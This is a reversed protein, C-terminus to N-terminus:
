LNGTFGTQEVVVAKVLILDIENYKLRKAMDITGYKLADTNDRVLLVKIYTGRTDEAVSFRDNGYLGGRSNKNYLFSGSWVRNEKKFRVPPIESLFGAKDTTVEKVFWMMDSEIELSLARKTKEQPQNIVISVMEDVSIGYFENYKQTLVPHIYPVGNVYSVFSCGSDDFLSINSYREPTFPAFGLWDDLLPHYVITDNPLKYKEDTNNVASDRLSKITTYVAGTSQNWGTIYRLKNLPEDVSNSRSVNQCNVRFFSQVKGVGADRAISYDHIIRGQRNTDVWTGYGDGFYISGVGHYQCGFEGIPRPQPDSIVSGSPLARLVNDAGVRAFDDAVESVFNDNECVALLIKGDKIGVGIIDGQGPAILTKVIDGFYNMITPSNLTINRGYRRETEFANEVYAKGTDSVRTGWFDSPSHHFFQGSYSGITRNVLFTDFTNFNGTPYVLEDNEGVPISACIGYYIDTTTNANPRQLEIIAGPTLDILKPDDLILIQNFYDAPSDTVGSITEDNFPSLIQFNLIGNVNADFISGDGNKIFEVRDGKLFKYVTNTELNYQTNYDNLSQITLKLKGDVTKEISDVKWQLEYPNLNIGRVIDLCTAWSPLKMGTATYRFGCFSNSGTEQIRPIDLYNTRYVASQRGCNGRVIFGFPYRGGPKLGRSVSADFITNVIADPLNIEPKGNYCPPTTQTANPMCPSCNGVCDKLLCGNNNMVVLRIVRNRSEYNRIRFVAEGEQNTTAYKSGSIAVKIGPVAVGNCDKVSMQPIAYFNNDYGSTSVTMNVNTTVGEGGETDLVTLETQGSCSNEGKVSVLASAVGDKHFHYFGNHDTTSIFDGTSDFYLNLGEVPHDSADKIYGSYASGDSGYAALDDVLFATDLIVDGNCTNFYIEEEAVFSPLAEVNSTGTYETINFIGRVSTSTNQSSGVGNMASQSTIRIFGSTGKVVNLKFEQYYFQGTTAIPFMAASRQSPTEQASVIGTKQRTNFGPASSWQEMNAWVDSAEVYAIFNRTNDIFTQGYGLHENVPIGIMGGYYAPDSPDDSENISTGKQRFVYQNRNNVRDHVVLRGTVTVFEVNCNDEDTNCNTEISFKEVEKQDLPCNGDVYNYFALAEKIEFMGQPFRPIPNRVRSIQSPAIAIKGKDNCFFYDFACDEYSFGAETIAESFEREYWKEQSDSYKKYKEITEAIFWNQGDTTYGIQIKEVMPNGVPVRLKICRPLSATSDFCGRSNIYFTTSRDSWLSERGDYYIHKYMLQIPMDLIRNSLFKDGDAPPVFEGALCGCPDPVCLRIYDCPNGCNAFFPTTFGNTAISAETDICGIDSQGDTWILYKGDRNPCVKEINLFSRFQEISHKPDASLSLCSKDYVIQCGHEASIRDIYHAGNSNFNWSYTENTLKSQHSGISYTEGAPQDKECAPYNAKMPRGIGMNNGKDGDMELLLEHGRFFPSENPELNKYGKDLNLSTIKHKSSYDM